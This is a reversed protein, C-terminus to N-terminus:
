GWHFPCVALGLGDSSSPVLRQRYAAWPRSSPQCPQASEVGRFPEAILQRCDLNAAQKDALLPAQASLLTFITKQSRAQAPTVGTWVPSGTEQAANLKSDPAHSCNNRTTNPKFTPPKSGADRVGRLLGSFKKSVVASTRIRHVDIWRSGGCAFIRKSFCHLQAFVLCCFVDFLQVSLKQHVPHM